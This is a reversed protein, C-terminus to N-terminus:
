KRLKMWKEANERKMIRFSHNETKEMTSEKAISKKTTRHFIFRTNFMKVKGQRKTTYIDLQMPVQDTFKWYNAAYWGGIYYDKGDFMEDTIIVPNDLWKGTRAKIPILFYKKKSLKMIRGKSRLTYIINIMQKKNEFHNRIDEVTFYYKKRFELDSVVEIEKKSLGKM